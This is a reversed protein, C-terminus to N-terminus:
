VIDIVICIAILVAVVVVVIFLGGNLATSIAWWALVLALLASLYPMLNSLQRYYCPSARLSSSPACARGLVFDVLHDQNEPRLAAGHEGPHYAVETTEYGIFGAFGGTGIDRMAWGRLANCLLAVAWDRDARHNTVHV